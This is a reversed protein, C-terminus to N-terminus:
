GDDDAKLIWCMVRGDEIFRGYLHDPCYAWWNSRHEGRRWASRDLEAVSPQACAPKSGGRMRCRKGTVLRWATDPVAVLRFGEPVQRSEAALMRATVWTMTLGCCQPWGSTLHHAVDGPAQETGCEGCRLIGGATALDAAIAGPLGQLRKVEAILDTMDAM